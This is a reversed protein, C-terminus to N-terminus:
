PGEDEGDKPPSGDTAPSKLKAFERLVAQLRLTDGIEPDELNRAVASSHLLGNAILFFAFLFFWRTRLTSAFYTAALASWGTAHLCIFMVDGHLERSTPETLADRLPQLSVAPLDKEELGCRRRVLQKAVVEWWRFSPDEAPNPPSTKDIAKRQVRHIWTRMWIPKPKPPPSNPGPLPVTLLRHCIPLVVYKWLRPELWYWFHWGCRFIFHRILGVFTVFAAGIVFGAFLVGFVVAYSGFPLASQLPTILSSLIGPKAIALAGIFFLGPMFTLVFVLANPAVIKTFDVKLMIVLIYLVGPTVPL